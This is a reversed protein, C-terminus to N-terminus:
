SRGSFGPKSGDRALPAALTVQRPHHPRLREHPRSPLGHSRSNQSTCRSCNQGQGGAIRYGASSVLCHGDGGARCGSPDPCGEPVFTRAGRADHLDAPLGLEGGVRCGSSVPWSGHKHFRHEGVLGRRPHDSVSNKGASRNAEDQIGGIAGHQIVPGIGSLDVKHPDAM